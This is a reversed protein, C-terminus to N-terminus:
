CPKGHPCQMQSLQGRMKPSLLLNSGHSKVTRLQMRHPLVVDPTSTFYKGSFAPTRTSVTSPPPTRPSPVSCYKFDKCSLIPRGYGTWSFKSRAYPVLEPRNPQRVRVCLQSTLCTSNDDQCQTHVPPRHVLAGLAELLQRLQGELGPWRWADRDDRGHNIEHHGEKSVSAIRWSIQLSGQLVCESM